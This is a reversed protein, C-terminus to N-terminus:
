NFWWRLFNQQYSPSSSYVVEGDWNTYDQKAISTICSEINYVVNWICITIQKDLIDLIKVKVWEALLLTVKTNDSNVASITKSNDFTFELEKWVVNWWKWLEAENSDLFISSSTSDLM